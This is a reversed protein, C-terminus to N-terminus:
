GKKIAALMGELRAITRQLVVRRAAVDAPRAPSAGAGEGPAASGESGGAAVAQLEALRRHLRENAPERELLQRYVDVAKDTFGQKFYLEALTPSVLDGPPPAVTAPPAALVPSEAVAEAPAVPTSRAAPAPPGPVVVPAPPEETFFTDSPESVEPGPAPLAAPPAEVAAEVPVEAPPVPAPAPAPAFSMASGAAADFEFEMEGGERGPSPSRAPPAPLPPPAAAAPVPSPPAHEVTRELEFDAEAAAIPIPSPDSSPVSTSPSASPPAVAAPAPPPPSLSAVRDEPRELEMPADVEVLKIPAIPASPPVGALPPPPKPLAGAGAAGPLPGPGRTAGSPPRIEPRAPAPGPVPASSPRLGPGAGPMGGRELAELRTLVQKDGPALALTKKYRAVAEGVDGLSELSEGLLRSALINDPAGKLVQEFEVRAAAWDGTDFLARGLTMRASPYNSHKQLGERAVRIADEYEGDKRLEEALQAFLRSGPEKDLKKRLEDIRPNGAM